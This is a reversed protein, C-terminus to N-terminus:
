GGTQFDRKYAENQGKTWAGVEQLAGFEYNDNFLQTVLAEGPYDPAGVEPPSCVQVLLSPKINRALGALFDGM